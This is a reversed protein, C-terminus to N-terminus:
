PTICDNYPVSYLQPDIPIGCGAVDYATCETCTVVKKTCRKSEDETECYRIQNTSTCKWYYGGSGPEADCDACTGDPTCVGLVTVDAVARQRDAFGGLFFGLSALLLWRSVSTRTM